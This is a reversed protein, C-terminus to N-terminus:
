HGKERRKIHIGGGWDPRRQLLPYSSSDAGHCLTLGPAHAGVGLSTSPGKSTPCTASPPPPSVAGIELLSHVSVCIDPMSPVHVSVTFCKWLLQKDYCSSMGQCFNVQLFSTPDQKACTNMGREKKINQLTCFPVALFSMLLNKPNKKSVQCQGVCSFIKKKLKEQTLSVPVQRELAARPMLLPNSWHIRSMVSHLKVLFLSIVDQAFPIESQDHAQISLM